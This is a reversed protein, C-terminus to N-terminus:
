KMIVTQLYIKWNQIVQLATYSVTTGVYLMPTLDQNALLPIMM